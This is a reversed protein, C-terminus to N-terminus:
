RNTNRRPRDKTNSNSVQQRPHGKLGMQKSTASSKGEIRNTENSPTRTNMRPSVGEPMTKKLTQGIKHSSVDGSPSGTVEVEDAGGITEDRTSSQGRVQHRGSSGDRGRAEEGARTRSLRDAVRSVPSTSGTSTRQRSVTATYARMSTQRQGPSSVSNNHDYTSRDSRKGSNQSAQVDTSTVYDRQTNQGAAKEGRVEAHPRSDTQKDTM